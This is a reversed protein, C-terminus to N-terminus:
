YQTDGCVQKSNVSSEPLVDTKTEENGLSGAYRVKFRSWNEKEEGFKWFKNQLIHWIM